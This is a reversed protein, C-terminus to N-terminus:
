NYKEELYNVYSETLDESTSLHIVGILSQTWPDLTEPLNISSNAPKTTPSEQQISHLISDVLEKRDEISLQLAQSQLEKLTM